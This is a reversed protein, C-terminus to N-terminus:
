GCCRVPRPTSAACRRGTCTCGKVADAFMNDPRVKEIKSVQSAFTILERHLALLPVASGVTNMNTSVHVQFGALTGIAGNAVVKDGLQTSRLFANSQLLLAKVEPNVVLHRDEAPIDAEDMLKAMDVMYGYVNATTLTIPSGSTGLVNGADVNTYHGHLRKDIVNRIAVAARQAYGELININAQAKDLDDLKFAFYKQQDILLTDMPDSLDQYAITSNRTYDNITIDGFTRIQVTDGANKIEGEFDRNVISAFVAQKDFIKQLKKSWVEPMFNGTTQPM